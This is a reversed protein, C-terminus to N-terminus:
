VGPELVPLVLSYATRVKYEGDASYKWVLKDSVYATKSIPIAMSNSWQAYSYIARILDFNWSYSSQDLLNAM